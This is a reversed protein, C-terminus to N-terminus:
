GLETTVRTLTLDDIPSAEYEHYRSLRGSTSLTSSPPSSYSPTWTSYRELRRRREDFGVAAALIEVVTANMSQGRERSLAELRNRVEESVGRVTLQKTM